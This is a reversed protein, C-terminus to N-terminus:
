AKIANVSDMEREPKCPPNGRLLSQPERGGGAPLLQTLPGANRVNRMREEEGDRQGGEEPPEPLGTSQATERGGVQGCKVLGKPHSISRIQARSRTRM